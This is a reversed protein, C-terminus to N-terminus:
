RLLPLEITQGKFEHTCDDLFQIIGNTVFSHCISKVREGEYQRALISPTLTPKEYNGNFTWANMGEIPITHSDKCGPCKFSVYGPFVGKVRM